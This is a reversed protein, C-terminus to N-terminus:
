AIMLRATNTPNRWATRSIFSTSLLVPPDIQGADWYNRRASRWGETILAACPTYERLLRPKAARGM